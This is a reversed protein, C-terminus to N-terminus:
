AAQSVRFAAPATPEPPTPDERGLVTALALVAKSGCVGCRLQRSNLIRECNTCLVACSLPLSILEPDGDFMAIRRFARM